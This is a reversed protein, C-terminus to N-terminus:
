KIELLYFSLSHFNSQSGSQLELFVFRAAPKESVHHVHGLTFNSLASLAALGERSLKVYILVWRTEAYPKLHVSPIQVVPTKRRGLASWM